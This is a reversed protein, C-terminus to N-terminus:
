LHTPNSETNGDTKRAVADRADAAADRANAVDDRDDASEDREDAVRDRADAVLDRVDSSIEPRAVSEDQASPNAAQVELTEDGLLEVVVLGPRPQTVNLEPKV